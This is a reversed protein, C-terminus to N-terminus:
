RISIEKHACLLQSCNRLARTNSRRLRRAGASVTLTRWVSLSQKSHLVARQVLYRWAEDGRVFAARGIFISYRRFLFTFIPKRTQGSFDCPNDGDHGLLRIRLDGEQWAPCQNCSRCQIDSDDDPIIYYRTSPLVTFIVIVGALMAATLAYREPRPRELNAAITVLGIACLVVFLAVAIAALSLGFLNGLEAVPTAAALSWWDPMQGHAEALQSAINPIRTQLGFLVLLACSILAYWWSENIIRKISGTARYREYGAVLIMPGIVPWLMWDTSQALLAVLLFPRLTVSQTRKYRLFSLLVFALLMQAFAYPRGLGSYLRFIVSVTAFGSVWLGLVHGAYERGALYLLLIFLLSAIMASLRMILLKHGPACNVLEAFINFLPPHADKIFIYQLRQLLYSRNYVEDIRQIDSRDTAHAHNMLFQNFWSLFRQNEYEPHYNTIHIMEDNTVDMQWPAHLRTALATVLLLTVAAIRLTKPFTRRTSAPEM